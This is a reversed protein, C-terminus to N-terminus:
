ECQSGSVERELAQGHCRRRSMLLIPGRSSALSAAMLNSHHGRDSQFLHGGEDSDATAGLRDRDGRIAHRWVATETRAWRPWKQLGGNRSLQRVRDFVSLCSTRCM